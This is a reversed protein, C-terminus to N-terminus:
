PLPNVQTNCPIGIHLLSYFESEAGTTLTFSSYPSGGDLEVTSSQGTGSVKAGSVTLGSTSGGDGLPCDAKVTKLSQSFTFEVNQGNRGLSYVPLVVRSVPKNITFSYTKSKSDESLGGEDNSFFLSSGCPQLCPKCKCVWLSDPGLGNAASATFVPGNSSLFIYVQGDDVEFIGFAGRASVDRWQVWCIGKCCKNCEPGIFM